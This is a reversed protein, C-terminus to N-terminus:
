ERDAPREANDHRQQASSRLARMSIVSSRRV